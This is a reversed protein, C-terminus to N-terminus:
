GQEIRTFEWRMGNLTSLPVSECRSAIREAERRGFAKIQNVVGVPAMTDGLADDLGLM